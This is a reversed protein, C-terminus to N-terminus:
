ALGRDQDRPVGGMVKSAVTYLLAGQQKTCGSEVGAERVTQVLAQRFKVNKIAGRCTISSPQGSMIIPSRHTLLGTVWDICNLSVSSNWARAPHGRFPSHGGGGAGRPDADGHGLTNLSKYLPSVLSGVGSLVKRSQITRDQDLRIQWAALPGLVTGEPWAPRHDVVAGGAHVEPIQILLARAPVNAVCETIFEVMNCPRPNSM